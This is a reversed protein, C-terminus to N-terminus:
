GSMMYRISNLTEMHTWDVANYKLWTETNYEKDYEVIWKDVSKALLMRQKSSGESSESTSDCSRKSNRKGSM